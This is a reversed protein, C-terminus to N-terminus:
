KLGPKLKTVNENNKGSTLPITVFSTEIAASMIDLVYNDREKIHDTIDCNIDSCKLSEPENIILLKEELTKMYNFIENERAKFWAPRRPEPKPKENVKESIAEKM